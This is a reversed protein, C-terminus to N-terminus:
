KDVRFLDCLETLKKRYSDILIITDEDTLDNYADFTDRDEKTLLGKNDLCTNIAFTKAENHIKSHDGKPILALNSDKYNSHNNDIHHVVLSSDDNKNLRNQCLYNRLAIQNESKIDTGKMYSFLVDKDIKSINTKSKEEFLSLQEGDENNEVLVISM